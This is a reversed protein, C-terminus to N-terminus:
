EKTSLEGSICLAGRKRPRGTQKHGLADKITAIEGEGLVYQNGVRPLNKKQCVLLVMSRSYGLMEAVQASTYQKEM